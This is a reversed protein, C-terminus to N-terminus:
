TRFAAVADSLQTAMANLEYAASSTQRAAQAATNSSSLLEAV